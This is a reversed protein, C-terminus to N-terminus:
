NLACFKLCTEASSGHRMTDFLLLVGGSHSMRLNVSIFHHKIRVRHLPQLPSFDAHTASTFIICVTLPDRLRSSMKLRRLAPTEFARVPIAYIFVIIHVGCFKFSSYRDLQRRDNTCPALVEVLFVDTGEGYILSCANILASQFVGAKGNLRFHYGFALARPSFCSCTKKQLAALSFVACQLVTKQDTRLRM